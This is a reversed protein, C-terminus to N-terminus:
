KMRLIKEIRNKFAMLERLEPPIVVRFTKALRMGNRTFRIGRRGEFEFVEHCDFCVFRRFQIGTDLNVRDEVLDRTLWLWSYCKPCLFAVLKRRNPQIKERFPKYPRLKAELAM